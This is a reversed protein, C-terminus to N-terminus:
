PQSARDLFRPLEGQGAACVVARLMASTVHVMDGLMVVAADCDGPLKRLGCHLSGSTPGTFDPNTAFECNMGTLVAKIREPQHGLVVVICASGASQASRVARRVLPEGEFKLLMKNTGM